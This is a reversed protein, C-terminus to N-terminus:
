NEPTMEIEEAAMLIRKRDKLHKERGFSSRWFKFPIAALLIFGLQSVVFLAM